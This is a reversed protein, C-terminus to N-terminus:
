GQRHFRSTTGFRQYAFVVGQQTIVWFHAFHLILVYIVNERSWLIMYIRCSCRLIYVLCSVLSFACM